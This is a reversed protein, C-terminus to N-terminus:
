QETEKRRKELEKLIDNVNDMTTVGPYDQEFQILSARSTKENDRTSNYIRDYEGDAFVAKLFEKSNDPMLKWDGYLNIFAQKIKEISIPNGAKAHENLVGVVDSLDNKYQRGSRLKMAILYEASVTRVELVNSFTRYYISYQNIKDTYSATHVFDANFWGNPLNYRDGVRNIADKMSSSAHIIADIDSTMDRFGYNALVAAGGILIVEAKMTKGNLKRYEKALEKLYIDLNNKTFVEYKESSM